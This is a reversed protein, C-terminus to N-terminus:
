SSVLSQSNVGQLKSFDILQDFLNEVLALLSLRRSRISPEEVMIMVEEFFRDIPSRLNALELLAQSYDHRQLAQLFVEQTQVLAEYLVKESPETWTEATLSFNEPLIKKDKAQNLINRTRKIGAALSSFEPRGRVSKLASLKSQIVSLTQNPVALVAEIEDVRFGQNLFAQQFRQKFFEKLDNIEKKLNEKGMGAFAAEIWSEWSTTWQRQMLIRMVGVAMRRLGYPDASGTPVLGISFDAALTDMKDAASVLSGEESTPLKGEATLPWYHEEIARSVEPREYKESYFRGAVGQLEPLEGVMQTLLDTKSLHAVRVSNAVVAADVGAAQGMKQVFNMVRFTKEQMNGLKEHLGIGALRPVLSELKSQSDNDYFFQADALRANIVREYGERVEEQSESPGNRVGVFANSLLGKSTMVPFFKQHKKLVTVLVEKPLELYKEPFHGVISVPYETLFVVEEMHADDWIVDGKLKKSLNEIQSIINKKREEPDV